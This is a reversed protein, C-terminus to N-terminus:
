GGNKIFDDVLRDCLLLIKEIEEKTINDIHVGAIVCVTKKTDKSITNAAKLAIIDDKHGLRTIVSASARGHQHDYEGIAVAGIHANQNSISIVLDDGMSSASLNVKLRGRGRSFRHESM